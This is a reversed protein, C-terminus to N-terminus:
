ASAAYVINTSTLTIAVGHSNFQIDVSKLFWEWEPSSLSVQYTGLDVEALQSWHLSSHNAGPIAEGNHYWQITVSTASQFEVCLSAAGGPLTTM